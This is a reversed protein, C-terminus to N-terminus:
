AGSPIGMARFGLQSVRYILAGANKVHRKFLGCWRRITGSLKEGLNIIRPPEPLLILTSLMFISLFHKHLGIFFVVIDWRFFFSYGQLTRVRKKIIISKSVKSLLIEVEVQLGFGDTWRNCSQPKANVLFFNWLSSIWPRTPRSWLQISKWKRLEMNKKNSNLWSSSPIGGSFNPPSELGGVYNQQHHRM